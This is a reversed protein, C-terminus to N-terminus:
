PLSLPELQIHSSGSWLILADMRGILFDWRAAQASKSLDAEKIAWSIIQGPWAFDIEDLETKHAFVVIQM